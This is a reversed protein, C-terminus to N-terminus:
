GRDRPARLHTYSVAPDDNRPQGSQAPHALNPPHMATDDQANPPQPQPQIQQQQSLPGDQQNLPGDRTQWGALLMNVIDQSTVAAHNLFPLAALLPLGRAHTPLLHAIIATHAMTNVAHVFAETVNDQSCKARAKTTPGQQGPPNHGSTIDKQSAKNQTTFAPKYHRAPILRMDM